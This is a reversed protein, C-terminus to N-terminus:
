RPAEYGDRFAHLYAIALEPKFYISLYDEGMEEGTFWYVSYTSSNSNYFVGLKFATGKVDASVILEM